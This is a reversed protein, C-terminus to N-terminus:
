TSSGRDLEISMAASHQFLTRSLAKSITHSRHIWGLEIGQLDGIATGYTARLKHGPSEAAREDGTDATVGDWGVSHIYDHEANVFDESSKFKPDVVVLQLACFGSAGRDCQTDHAVIKAGPLLPLQSADPAKTASGPGCGVLAVSLALLGIASVRGATM